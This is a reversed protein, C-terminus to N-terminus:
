RSAAEKAPAASFHITTERVIRADHEHINGQQPLRVLLENGPNQLLLVAEVKFTGGPTAILKHTHSPPSPPVGSNGENARWKVEHKNWFM